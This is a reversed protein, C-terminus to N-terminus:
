REAGRLSFRPLNLFSKLQNGIVSLSFTDEVRKRAQEGMSRRLDQDDVLGALARVLAEPDDLPVVVGGDSAKAFIDRVGLCDVAIVPLRCAMAELPAVAFGEHRSTFAYVDAASLYQRMVGRDLVYENRWIVRCVNGAQILERLAGSDPGDGVLVLYQDADPRERTFQRWMEILLDLGKRGLDIRGHWMVLVAHEPLRLARRAAGRDEPYWMKLDLPNCITAVKRGPTHYVRRVRDRERCSGIILGASVGIAMRRFLREFRSFRTNGGQFTAFVPIGGLAGALVSLDFRAHEYEQCLVAQCNRKRLEGRLLGLPTAMYPLADQLLRTAQRAVASKAGTRVGNREAARRLWRYLRSAPLVCIAAGTPGHTWSEVRVVRASICILTTRVGASRLAEIFGFMWGGTMQDRFEELTVNIGSLFDEILDGWHLLAVHTIGASSNV